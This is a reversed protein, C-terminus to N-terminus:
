VGYLRRALWLSRTPSVDEYEIAEFSQSRWFRIADENARNTGIHVGTAGAQRAKEIWATLLRAGIGRRQLRPLLNMHTHAPFAAAIARPPTEPHHILFARRQDPTWVEAPTESPDAYNERLLPWWERELRQTWALTDLVGVIFGAVGQEDEVILVLGPELTAYPASYIHGILKSDEYLHSADRGALGTAISIAYLADLDRPQYPRINSKM